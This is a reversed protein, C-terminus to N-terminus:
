GPGCGGPCRYGLGMHRGCQSASLQQLKDGVKGTNHDMRLIEAIMAAVSASGASNPMEVLEKARKSIPAWRNGGCSSARWVERLYLERLEDLTLGYFREFADAAGRASGTLAAKERRNAMKTWADYRDRPLDLLTSYKPDCQLKGAKVPHRINRAEHYVLCIIEVIQELQENM